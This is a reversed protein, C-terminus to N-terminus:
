IYLQLQEAIIMLLFSLDIFYNNLPHKTELDTLEKFNIETDDSLNPQINACYISWQRRILINGQFTQM